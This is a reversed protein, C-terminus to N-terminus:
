TPARFLGLRQGRKQLEKLKHTLTTMEVLIEDLTAMYDFDSDVTLGHKRRVKSKVRGVNGGEDIVVNSHVVLNRSQEVRGADKIVSICHEIFESDTSLTKVLALFVDCLRSFPLVSTIAQGIQQQEGVMSMTALAVQTEIYQFQACVKGIKKLVDDMDVDSKLEAEM